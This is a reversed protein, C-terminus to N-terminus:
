PKAPWLDSLRRMHPACALFAKFAFVGLAAFLSSMAAQPVGQVANSRMACSLVLLAVVLSSLVAQVTAAGDRRNDLCDGFATIAAVTALPVAGLLAARALGHAGSEDATAALVVLLAPLLRRGV